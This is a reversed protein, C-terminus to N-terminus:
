DRRTKSQGVPCLAIHCDSCEGTQMSYQALCRPCYSKMNDNEAAPAAFLQGTDFGITDFFIDLCRTHHHISWEIIEQAQLSEAGVKTYKQKRYYQCAFDTFDRDALFAKGFALPHFSHFLNEGIFGAAKVLYPPFLIMLLINGCRGEAAKGRFHCDNIYYLVVISMLVLPYAAPLLPWYPVLLSSRSLSIFVALTCVFFVSSLRRLLASKRFFDSLLAAARQADLRKEYYEDILTERSQEPTNRLANLLSCLQALNQESDGKHRCSGDILLRRDDHTVSKIQDYRSLHGDASVIGGPAISFPLETCSFATDVPLFFNAIFYGRGKLRFLTESFCFKRKVFFYTSFVIGRTDSSILTEYICFAWFVLALSLYSNM